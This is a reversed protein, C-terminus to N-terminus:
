KRLLHRLRDLGRRLLGAVSAPTRALQRAVEPVRCGRLYRLTVAARQQAPLRDLAQALRAGQEHREAQQDPGVLHDAPWRGPRRWVPELPVERALDHEPGSFRRAAERLTNVLIARLWAAWGAPDTSHCRERGAHAKLIAEQVADAPDLKARLAPRIHGRALLLLSPLYRDLFM